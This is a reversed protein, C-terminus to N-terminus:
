WLTYTPLLFYSIPREDLLIQHGCHSQLGDYVHSCHSIFGSIDNWKIMTLCPIGREQIIIWSGWYKKELTSFLRRILWWGVPTKVLGSARLSLTLNFDPDSDLVGISNNVCYSFALAFVFHLNFYIWLFVLSWFMYKWFVVQVCCAGVELFRDGWRFALSALSRM